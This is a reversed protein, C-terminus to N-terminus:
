YKLEELDEPSLNTLFSEVLNGVGALKGPDVSAFSNDTNLAGEADCWEV